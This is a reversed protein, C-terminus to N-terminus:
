KANKKHYENWVSEKIAVAKGAFDGVHSKIYKKMSGFPDDEKSELMLFDNYKM